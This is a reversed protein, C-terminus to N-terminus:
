IGINPIIFIAESDGAVLVSSGAVSISNVPLPQKTMIAKTNVRTKVMESNLWICNTTSSQVTSTQSFYSPGIRNANSGNWHWVEGSSDCSFMHDPQHSHFHVESVAASHAKVVSMPYTPTGRLDWFALVGNSAGGVVVHPQTPHQSLCTVGVLDMALHCTKSPQVETSRLDWIKVQGRTNGSAVQDQKLFLASSMSGSDAETFSKLPAQRKGNLLFMQGNSGVSVIHDGACSLSNCSGEVNRKSHLKNWAAVKTLKHGTSHLNRAELVNDRDIKLLSVTGDSSAIAFTDTNLFQVENVDGNGHDYSSLLNPEFVDSDEASVPVTEPDTTTEEVKNWSWLTVENVEDDWSGCVFIPDCSTSHDELYRWRIKSQKKYVFKGQPQKGFTVTM